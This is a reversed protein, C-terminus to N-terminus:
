SVQFVRGNLLKFNLTYLNKYLKIMPYKLLFKFKLHELELM